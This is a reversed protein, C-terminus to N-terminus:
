GQPAIESDVVCFNFEGSTFIYICKAATSLHFVFQFVAIACAHLLTLSHRPRRAEDLLSACVCRVAIACAGDAAAGAGARKQM